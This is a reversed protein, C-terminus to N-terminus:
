SLSRGRMLSLLLVVPVANSSPANMPSAFFEESIFMQFKSSSPILSAVFLVSRTRTSMSPFTPTPVVSGLWRRSTWPLEEVEWKTLREVVSLVAAVPATSDTFAKPLPVDISSMLMKSTEPFASGWKTTLFEPSTPIPVVSGRALNPTSPPTIETVSVLSVFTTM